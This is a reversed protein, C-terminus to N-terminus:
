IKEDIKLLYVLKELTENLTQDDYAPLWDHKEIFNKLFPTNEPTYTADTMIYIINTNSLEANNIEVAQHYSNVTDRSIYILIYFSNSMINKITPIWQVATLGYSKTLDGIPGFFNNMNRLILEEHLFIAQNDNEAYSVYINNIIKSSVSTSAGM